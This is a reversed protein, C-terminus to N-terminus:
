FNLGVFDLQAQSAKTAVAAELAQTVSIDAKGTLCSEYDPITIVAEQTETNYGIAVPALATLQAQKTAVESALDSVSATSAKLDIQGQLAADAEAVATSSAKTDVQAALATVSATSAKMNIQEQLSTDAEAVAASSAKTDVATSLSLFDAAVEAADAKASLGAAVTDFYNPDNGIAQALLEISNLDDPALGVVSEQISQYKRKLPNWVEVKDARISNSNTLPSAMSRRPKPM